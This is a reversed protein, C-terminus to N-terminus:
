RKAVDKAVSAASFSAARVGAERAADADGQQTEHLSADRTDPADRATSADARRASSGVRLGYRWGLEGGEELRQKGAEGSRIGELEIRPQAPGHAELLTEIRLDRGQQTHDSGRLVRPPKV